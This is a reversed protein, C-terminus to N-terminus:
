KLKQLLLKGEEKIAADDQRRTPLKELRELTEIAKEFSKYHNYAKALELFNPCFYPEANRCFEMLAIANKIDAPPLGGYLIKTSAKRFSGQTVVELHWSGLLWAAKAHSSDLILAKEAWFRWQKLYETAKEKKEEILALNRNALAMSFAALASTSDARIAAESFGLGQNMWAAKAVTGSARHGINGSLEAAKAAASVNDPQITFAQKYKEFAEEEKFKRELQKGEEMLGAPDQAKGNPSFFLFIGM